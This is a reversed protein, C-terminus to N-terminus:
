ILGDGRNADEVLTKGALKDIEEKFKNYDKSNSCKLMFNYCLKKIFIKVYETAICPDTDDTDICHSLNFTGGPPSIVKSAENKQPSHNIPPKDQSQFSSVGKGTCKPCLIIECHGYPVGCVHEYGGNPCIFKKGCGKPKCKSCLHYKDCHIDIPDGFMSISSFLSGCGKEIPTFKEGCRGCVNAIPSLSEGGCKTCLKYNFYEKSVACKFKVDEGDIEFWEGCGQPTEAKRPPHSTVGDGYVCPAVKDKPSGGSLSHNKPTFKECSCDRVKEKGTRHDCEEKKANINYFHMEEDHGCKACTATM